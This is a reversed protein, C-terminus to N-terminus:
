SLSFFLCCCLFSIPWQFVTSNLTYHHLTIDRHFREIYSLRTPIKQKENRGTTKLRPLNSFFFFCSKNTIKKEKEKKKKKKKRTNQRLQFRDVATARSRLGSVVRLLLAASGRYNKNCSDAGRATPCSAMAGHRCSYPISLIWSSLYHACVTFPLSFTFIDLIYIAGESAHPMALTAVQCEEQTRTRRLRAKRRRCFCVMSAMLCLLLLAVAGLIVLSATSISNNSVTPFSSFYRYEIVEM